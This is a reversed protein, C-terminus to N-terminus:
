CENSASGGFTLFGTSSSSSPLCYSFIKNYKQATQSVVSLKDRGLGLLGASGGFDGQNDQGCGFYINSFADTPTLTLKEAGFFGKSFSSDVYKIGYVCTSSACGPTNGTASTLSSCVPSSCSINTYSTSQSPDFIQEQQKYCSRACPQCQTWTIDSGTDFILSLQKQPTGLGVTVIYSGSGISAPITTADIVKVNNGGLTKPNSLRSHISKVRSQDQLLIETDTPAAITKDQNLTSCPGHKHVVKLSAKTDNNSLVKTPSKCSASPLLSSVEITHSHHNEAIKRGEFGYSKELSFLLCLFLFYSYLFCKM